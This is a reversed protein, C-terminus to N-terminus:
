GMLASEEPVWLCSPLTPLSLCHPTNAKVLSIAMNAWSFAVCMAIILPIVVLRSFLGLILLISCFFEAFVTLALSVTSGMGLFNLFMKQYDQFHTLKDYGHAMMLVSVGVRLVLLAINFAPATYKTSLLSRM